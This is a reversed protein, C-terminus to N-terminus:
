RSPSIPQNDNDHNSVVILAAIGLGAAALTVIGATTGFFNGGGVAAAVPVRAECATAGGIVGAFGPPVAPNGAVDFVRVPGGPAIPALARDSSCEESRRVVIADGDPSRGQSGDGAADFYFSISGAEPRPCPLRAVSRGGALVADVYYFDATLTSRFFLRARGAGSSPLITGQVQSHEGAIVCAHSADLAVQLTGGAPAQPNAAAVSVGPPAVLLAALVVAALRHISM